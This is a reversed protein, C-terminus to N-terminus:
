LGKSSSRCAFLIAWPQTHYNYLHKKTPKPQVWLHISHICHCKKVTASIQQTFQQKYTLHWKEKQKSTSSILLKNNQKFNKIKFNKKEQYSKPPCTEKQDGKEALLLQFINTLNQKLYFKPHFTFNGKIPKSPILLSPSYAINQTSEQDPNQQSWSPILINNKTKHNSALRQNKRAKDKAKILFKIQILDITLRYWLKKNGKSPLSINILIYM